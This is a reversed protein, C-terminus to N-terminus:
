VAIRVPLEYQDAVAAFLIGFDVSRDHLLVRLLNCVYVNAVNRPLADVVRTKGTEERRDLRIAPGEEIMRM